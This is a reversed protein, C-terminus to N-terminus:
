SSGTARFRQQGAKHARKFFSLRLSVTFENCKGHSRWLLIWSRNQRNKVSAAAAPFTRPKTEPTLKCFLLYIYVRCYKWLWLWDCSQTSVVVKIGWVAVWQHTLDLPNILCMSLKKTGSIICFFRFTALIMCPVLFLLLHFMDSRHPVTVKRLHICSVCWFMM